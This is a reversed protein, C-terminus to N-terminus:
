VKAASAVHVSFKLKPDVTVGLDKEHEMQELELYGYGEKM